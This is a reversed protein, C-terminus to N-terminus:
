KVRADLVGDRFRLELDRATRAADATTVPEGATDQVLAYGRELTREPDHAQLALRLRELDRRRKASDSTQARAASRRLVLLHVGALERGSAGARRASARLERLM